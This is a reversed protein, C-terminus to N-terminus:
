YLTIVAHLAGNAPDSVYVLHREGEQEYELRVTEGPRVEKKYSIETHDFLVTDLGDPLAEAAFNLYAPNHVHCNCDIMAKTVRFEQTTRPAAARKQVRPFQFGPFNQHEPECGYRDMIEPSLRVPTKKEADVALWVSTAQAIRDGSANFVDYDRQARLHHYQQAWTKVLISECARPRQFVQLKWNLVVWSLHSAAKDNVGQGMREGHLCTINTFAELLAKNTIKNDAGTDQIGVFFTHELQM